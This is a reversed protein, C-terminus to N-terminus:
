MYIVRVDHLALDGARVIVADVDEDVVPVPVVASREELLAEVVAIKLRLVVIEHLEVDHPRVM